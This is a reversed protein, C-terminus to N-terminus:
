IDLLALVLGYNGQFTYQIVLVSVLWTAASTQELDCDYYNLLM